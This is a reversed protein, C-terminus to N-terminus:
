VTMEYADRWSYAFPSYSFQHSQSLSKTPLKMERVVGHLEERNSFITANTPILIADAGVAKACEKAYDLMAQLLRKGSVERLVTLSPNIGPLSLYTRRQDRVVEFHMGGRAVGDDGFLVVNSFEPKNWLQDDVAVCVGMNLGAVAHLKKKTIQFQLKREEGGEAGEIFSWKAMEKEIGVADAGLIKQVIISSIKGAESTAGKAGALIEDIVITVTKELMVDDDGITEIKSQIQQYIDGELEVGAGQLIAKIRDTKQGEEMKTNRMIGSVSKAIAKKAKPPIDKRTAEGVEIEFTAADAEHYARLAADVVDRLSDKSWEFLRAGEERGSIFDPLKAGGRALFLAYGDRLAAKTTVANSESLIRVMSRGIEIVASPSVIIENAEAKDKEEIVIKKDNVWTIVESLRAWPVTEFREGESLEWKGLPFVVERGQFPEWEFPIDQSRDERRRILRVYEERSVGLAPPFVHSLLGLQYDNLEGKEQMEGGVIADVDERVEECLEKAVIKASRGSAIRTEYDRLISPTWPLKSDVFTVLHSEQGFSRTEMSLGLNGMEDRGFRTDLYFSLFDQFRTGTKSMLNRFVKISEKDPLIIKYLDMLRNDSDGWPNDVREQLTELTRFASAGQSEIVTRLVGDCLDKASLEGQHYLFPQIEELTKPVAAPSMKQMLSPLTGGVFGQYGQEFSLARKGLLSITWARDSMTMKEYGDFGENLPTYSEVRAKWESVEGEEFELTRVIPLPLQLFYSPADGRWARLQDPLRLLERLEDKSFLAMPRESDGKLADVLKDPNKRFETRVIENWEEESVTESFEAKNKELALFLGAELANKVFQKKESPSFAKWPTRNVMWEDSSDLKISLWEEVVLSPQVRELVSRPVYTICFDSHGFFINQIEPDGQIDPPLASFMGHPAIDHHQDKQFVDAWFRPLALADHPVKEVIPQYDSAYRSGLKCDRLSEEFLASGGLLLQRVDEAEVFADEVEERLRKNQDISKGRGFGAIESSRYMYSYNVLEFGM